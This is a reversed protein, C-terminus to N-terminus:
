KGVRVFDSFEVTMEADLSKFWFARGRVRTTVREPLSPRTATPLSYALTTKLEAIKVGFTPSFEGTSALEVGVIARTAKDVVITARLFAATKDGPEAPKLRCRYTARATDDALTEVTSLDLQAALNPATGGRSRRSRMAGYHATEDATPARGDQAVLSWRDFEPKAADCRETQSKGEATTTQTFSWGRPAEAHFEKLAAALEPPAAARATARATAGAAVASALIMAFFLRMADLLGSRLPSAFSSEEM